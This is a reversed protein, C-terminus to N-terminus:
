AFSKTASPEQMVDPNKKEQEEDTEKKTQTLQRNGREAIHWARTHSGLAASV